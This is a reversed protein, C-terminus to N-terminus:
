RAHSAYHREDVARCRQGVGDALLEEAPLDCLGTLKLVRVKTEWIGGLNLSCQPCENNSSSIMEKM